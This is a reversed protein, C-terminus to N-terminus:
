QQSKRDKRWLRCMYRNRITFFSQSTITLGAEPPPLPPFTQFSVSCARTAPPILKSVTNDWLETWRESSAATAHLSFRRPIIITPPSPVALWTIRPKDSPFESEGMRAIIGAPVPLSQTLVRFIELLLLATSAITDPLASCNSM